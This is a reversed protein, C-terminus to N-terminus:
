LVLVYYWVLMQFTMQLIRMCSSAHHLSGLLICFYDFMWEGWELRLSKRHRPQYLGNCHLISVQCMQGRFNFRQTEGWVDHLPSVALFIRLVYPFPVRRPVPLTHAQTM